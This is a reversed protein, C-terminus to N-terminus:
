RRNEDVGEAGRAGATYTVPDQSLKQCLHVADLLESVDSHQGGGVPGVHDILYVSAPETKMDGEEERTGSQYPQPSTTHKDTKDGGKGGQRQQVHNILNFTAREPRDLEVRQINDSPQKPTTSNSALAKTCSTHNQNESTTNAIM